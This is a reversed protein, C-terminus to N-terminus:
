ADLDAQANPDDYADVIAVTQGSGATASSLSYASELDQPSFGHDSGSGCYESEGVFCTPLAGPLLMVGESPATAPGRVGSTPAIISLCQARDATSQPCVSGPERQFIFASIGWLGLTRRSHCRSCLCPPPLFRWVPRESREGSM